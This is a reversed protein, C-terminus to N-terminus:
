GARGGLLVTCSGCQALGCGLKPGRRGLEDALVYLLPTLPDVDLSYQRGDVKLSLLSM